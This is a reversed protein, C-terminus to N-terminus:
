SLHRERGADSREQIERRFAVHAPSVAPQRARGVAADRHVHMLSTCFGRADAQHLIEHLLRNCGGPRMRSFAYTRM